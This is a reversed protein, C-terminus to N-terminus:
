GEAPSRNLQETARGEVGRKAGLGALLGKRPVTYVPHERLGATTLIQNAAMLGSSYAAEMLMAPLPTKVWDGALVLRDVETITAPRDAAMGVHFATFDANVQLHEHVVTAGHLEPFFMGLEERLMTSVTDEAVDDPLAYCHLEIVSGRHETAWAAAQSTIRHYM